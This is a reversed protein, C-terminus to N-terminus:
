LISVILPIVIAVLTEINTDMILKSAIYLLNDQLSLNGRLYPM